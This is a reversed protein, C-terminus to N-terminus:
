SLAGTLTLIEAPHQELRRQISALSRGGQTRQRYHLLTLAACRLGSLVQVINAKSSRSADEGLLTDRQWHSRNEIEWHGRIVGLLRVAGAQSRTLSTVGYVLTRTGVTEAGVWRVRELLFYQRARGWDWRETPPPAVVLLRRYERRGHGRDYSTATEAQWDRPLPGAFLEQLASQLGPQNGKVPMVYEGGAQVVTEALTEQTLLADVVVIRGRLPLRLLLPPAAPIENSKRAVPELDLTIGLEHTFVSLLHAVAAGERLSGKVTKGDCSFVGQQEPDLYALLALSWARLQAAFAEWDLVALVVHLTSAAPTKGERFGLACRVHEAAERGWEHIGLRHTRGALMAVVVLLLIAALPHRKGRAHRPDPVRRLYDILAPPPGVPRVPAPPAAPSSPLAATM